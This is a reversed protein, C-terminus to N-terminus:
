PLFELTIASATSASAVPRPMGSVPVVVKRGGNEGTGIAAIPAPPCPAPKAGSRNVV